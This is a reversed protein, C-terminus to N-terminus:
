FDIDIPKKTKIYKEGFVLVELYSLYMLELTDESNYFEYPSIESNKILNSKYEKEIKMKEIEKFQELEMYEKKLFIKIYLQTHLIRLEINDQFHLSKSDITADLFKKFKDKVLYKISYFFLTSNKVKQFENILTVKDEKKADTDFILEVFNSNINQNSSDSLHIVTLFLILSNRDLNLVFHSYINVAESNLIELDSIEEFRSIKGTKLFEEIDEDSFYKELLNVIPRKEKKWKSWTQRTFLFLNEIKKYDFLNKIRM